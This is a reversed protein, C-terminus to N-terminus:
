ELFWKTDVIKDGRMTSSGILGSKNLKVIVTPGDAYEVKVKKKNPFYNTIGDVNPGLGRIPTGLIEIAAEAQSHRPGGAVTQWDATPCRAPTTSQETAAAQKATTTPLPGHHPRKGWYM